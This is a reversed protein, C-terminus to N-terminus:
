GSSPGAIQATRRKAPQFVPATHQTYSAGALYSRKDCLSASHLCFGRGLALPVPAAPAPVIVIFYRAALPQVTNEYRMLSM